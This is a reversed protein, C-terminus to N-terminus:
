PQYEVFLDVIRLRDRIDALVPVTPAGELTADVDFLHTEDNDLLILRAPDRLAVQRAIESGISGGAGTVLVSRGVLLGSIAGDDFAVQQRGLIDEVNLDRLDAVGVTGTVIEEVSPLVRLGIGLRECSEAVDRILVSSATAVAFLIEDVDFARVIADLGAGAGVVPIGHLMRGRTRPDDDVVGVAKIGLSPNREIDAAVMAGAEGAGYILVRRPTGHDIRRRLGFLRSELRVAGTGVAALVAGVLVVSRPLSSPSLLPNIMLALLTAALAAVGLLRAERISAHRWMRGYLGFLLYSCLFALVLLPVAHRWAQWYHGPVRGNFRLVLAILFATVVVCADLLLLPLDSVVGIVSRGLRTRAGVGGGLVRGLRRMAPPDSPLRDSSMTM